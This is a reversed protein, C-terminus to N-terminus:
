ALEFRVQQVRLECLLAAIWGFICPLQPGLTTATLLAVQWAFHRFKRGYLVDVDLGVPDGGTCLETHSCWAQTEMAHSIIKTRGKIHGLQLVTAKKLNSGTTKMWPMWNKVCCRLHHCQLIYFDYYWFTLKATKCVFESDLSSYRKSNFYTLWKPCFYGCSIWLMTFHLLRPSCLFSVFWRKRLMMQGCWFWCFCWWTEHFMENNIMLRDMRHFLITYLTYLTYIRINVHAVDYWEHKFQLIKINRRQDQQFGMLGQRTLHMGHHRPMWILSGEQSAIEAWTVVGGLFEGLFLSIEFFLNLVKLKQFHFYAQKIQQNDQWHNKESGSHKLCRHMTFCRSTHCCRCDAALFALSSEQFRKSPFFRPTQKVSQSCM